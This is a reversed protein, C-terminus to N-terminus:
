KKCTKVQIHEQQWCKFTHTVQPQLSALQWTRTVNGRHAPKGKCPSLQDLPAQGSDSFRSLLVAASTGVKYLIAHSAIDRKWRLMRQRQATQLSKWKTNAEKSINKCNKRQICTNYICVWIDYTYLCTQILHSFHLVERSWSAWCHLHCPLGPAITLSGIKGLLLGLLQDLAYKSMM